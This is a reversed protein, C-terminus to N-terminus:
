LFLIGRETYISRKSANVNQAAIGLANTLASVGDIKESSRVKDPKLNGAPDTALALNSANWRLVPNGGHQLEGAKLLRLLETTPSALSLFGQGIQVMRDEGLQEQLHQVIEGAFTRDFGIARIDYLSALEVIRAEIFSFDTTNGPTATIFGQRVWIDDQPVWFYCLVKWPEDPERPPFLLTFASLDNVRALDLGGFCPRGILSQTDIPMVGQDWSDMQIARENQETWQCFNLRRVTNEVAPM